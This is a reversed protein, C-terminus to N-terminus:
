SFMVNVMHKRQKGGIISSANAKLAFARLKFLFNMIRSVHKSTEEYLRLQEKVSLTRIGVYEPWQNRDIAAAQESGNRGAMGISEPWGNRLM